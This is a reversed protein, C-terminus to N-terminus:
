LTKLTQVTDMSYEKTAANPLVSCWPPLGVLGTKHLVHIGDHRQQLGMIEDGVL